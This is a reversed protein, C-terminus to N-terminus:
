KGATPITKAVMRQIEGIPEQLKELKRMSIKKTINLVQIGSSDKKQKEPIMIAAVLAVKGDERILRVYDEESAYVIGVCAAQNYYAKVLKKRNTKTEYSLVPIKAVKGTAFGFLIHGSYDTTAHIAIIQENEELGLVNPLYAGYLSAKSDEIEYLKLKYVNCKNSFLLLDSKNSSEFEQVISDDDKIKQEGSSRLSVLTIKKLYQHDTFFLRVKYDEIFVESPV